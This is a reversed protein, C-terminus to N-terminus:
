PAAPQAPPEHMVGSPPAQAVSLHRTTAPLTLAHALKKVRLLAFAIGAANLVLVLLWVWGWALGWDILAAALGMWLAFWATLAFLAAAVGLAVIQALALGARKMELAFLHVRDSVQGRVDAVLDRLAHLLSGPGAREARPPEPGEASEM